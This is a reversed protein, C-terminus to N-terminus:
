GEPDRLWIVQASLGQLYFKGLENLKSEMASRLSIEQTPCLRLNALMSMYIYSYYYIYLITIQMHATLHHMMGILKLDM